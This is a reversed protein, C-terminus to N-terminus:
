RERNRVRRVPLGTQEICEPNLVMRCSCDWQRFRDKEVMCIFPSALEKVFPVMMVLDYLTAIQLWSLVPARDGDERALASVGQSERGLWM